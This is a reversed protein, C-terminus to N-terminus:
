SPATVGAWRRYEGSVVLFGEDILPELGTFRRATPTRLRITPDRALADAYAVYEDTTVRGYRRSRVADQVKDPFTGVFPYHLLVCSVDAMVAGDVQHWDVFPRVRGDMRVLAAKTLGNRTGFVTRRIGGRHLRIRPDIPLSWEYPVSDIGTIDYYPYKERLCDGPHSEIAGLPADAFMDLMQAVVGTFGRTNLYRLFEQLAVRDSFPYDFHEDIDACLNWRGASFREALYRKMTNEYRDYPADTQLLIVDPCAALVEVTGDTSGNDLFVLGAAGLRRHHELFANVHLAGNRVVCIVILDNEGCTIRGAGHLHRVRPHLLHPRIGFEVARRAASRAARLHRRRARDLWRWGLAVLAGPGGTRLAEAAQAGKRGIPGRM